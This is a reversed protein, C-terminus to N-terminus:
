HSKNTSFNNEQLKKLQIMCYDTIKTLAIAIITTLILNILFVITLKIPWFLNIRRAVYFMLTSSVGQAFYFSIANKGVNILPNNEKIEIKGLFYWTLSISIMSYVLYTIDFAFKAIYMDIFKYTGFLALLINSLIIGTFLYKFNKFSIKKDYLYYGLLYIFNYMLIESINPNANKFYYLYMMYFVFNLLLVKNLSIKNKQCKVILISGLLSVIFYMPMFWLSQSIVTLPLKVDISFFLAKIINTLSFYNSRFLLIVIFYIIVFIVWKYWLKILSTLNKEITKQYHFTMGSIFIFLPVDILLSIDLMWVPIYESGSKCVTHIFIISIAAIGRFFDLNYNRKM